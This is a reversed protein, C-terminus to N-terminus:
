VLSSAPAHYGKPHITLAGAQDVCALLVDSPSSVNQKRLEQHLWAEDRGLASLHQHLIKGDLIVNVCLGKADVTLKMDEPTVPSKESKLLVSLGGNTEFIALEVDALNFVEKQRFEELLDNITLKTSKLGREVIQGKEVVVIPTGDLLKRGTFSKASVWSLALSFLSFVLAGVLADLLDISPDIACESAISGISIGIVYDFFTLQAIQKKGLVRALVFLVGFSLLSRFITSLIPMAFGGHEDNRFTHGQM